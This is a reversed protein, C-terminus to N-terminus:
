PYKGTAPVGIRYDPYSNTAHFNFVFVVGARDFAMVKDSQHKTSM